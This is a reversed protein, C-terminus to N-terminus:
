DLKLNLHRVLESWREHERTLFNAFQEPTGGEVTIGENKLQAGFSASQLVRSVDRNITAVISRPTGEPVLLGYALSSEFGPLTEAVTPVNPLLALRNRGTM